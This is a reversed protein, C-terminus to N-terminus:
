AARRKTKHELILDDVDIGTLEYIKAYVKDAIPRFEVEDLTDHDISKAWHVALAVGGKVIPRTFPYEKKVRQRIIMADVFQMMQQNERETAFVPVPVSDKWGVACLLYARLLEADDEPEPELGEPWHRCIDAIVGFFTDHTKSQRPVTVQGKFPRREPIKLFKEESEEDAPLLARGIRTVTLKPM